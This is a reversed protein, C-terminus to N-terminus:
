LSPLGLACPETHMSRQLVAPDTPQPEESHVTGGHTLKSGLECRDSHCRSDLDFGRVFRISNGYFWWDVVLKSVQPETLCLSEPKMVPSVGSIKTGQSHHVTVLVGIISINPPTQTASNTTSHCCKSQWRVSTSSVSTLNQTSLQSRRKRCSALLELRDM